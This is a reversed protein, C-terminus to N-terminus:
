RKRKSAAKGSKKATASKRKKSKPKARTETKSDLSLLDKVAAKITALKSKPM